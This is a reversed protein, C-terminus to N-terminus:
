VHARGIETLLDRWYEIVRAQTAVWDRVAAMTAGQRWEADHADSVVAATTHPRPTRGSTLEASTINGNLAARTAGCRTFATVAGM